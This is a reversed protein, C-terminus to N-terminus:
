GNPRVEVRLCYAQLWIRGSGSDRVCEPSLRLEAYTEPRVEVCFHGLGVPQYERGVLHLNFSGSTFWRVPWEAEERVVVENFGLKGLFLAIGPVEVVARRPVEYTVHNVM